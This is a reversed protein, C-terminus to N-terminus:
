LALLNGTDQSAAGILLKRGWTMTALAGRVLSAAKPNALLLRGGPKLAAVATKVGAKGVVDIIADQVERPLFAGRNRWGPRM